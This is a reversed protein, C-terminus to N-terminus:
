YFFKNKIILDDCFLIKINKNQRKLIKIIELKLINKSTIYIDAKGKFIKSSHVYLSIFHGQNRTRCYSNKM